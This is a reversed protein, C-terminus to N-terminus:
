TVDLNYECARKLKTLALSASHLLANVVANRNLQLRDTRAASWRGVKNHSRTVVLSKEDATDVFSKRRISNDAYKQM